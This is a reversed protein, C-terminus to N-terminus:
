GYLVFIYFRWRCVGSFIVSLPSGLLTHLLYLVVTQESPNCRAGTTPNPQSVGVRWYCVDTKVMLSACVVEICAMHINTYMFLLHHHEALHYSRTGIKM